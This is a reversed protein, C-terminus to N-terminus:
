TKEQIQKIEMTVFIEDACEAAHSISNSRFNLRSDVYHLAGPNNIALIIKPRKLEPNQRLSRELAHRTLNLQHGVDAIDSVINFKANPYDKLEPYDTFPVNLGDHLVFVVPEGSKMEEVIRRYLAPSTYAESGASVSMLKKRMTESATTLRVGGDPTVQTKM